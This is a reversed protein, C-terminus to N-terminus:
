PPEVLDSSVFSFWFLLTYQNWYTTGVHWPTSHILRGSNTEFVELSYRAYGTQRVSKYVALEPLSIPLFGGQVEPMGLFTEGVETGMAQVLVKVLYGAEEEKRRVRFGQKGLAAAVADRLFSQDPTLGSIEVIVSADEPLTVTLPPLSREVAQTVLLQEIISRPSKSPERTHACAPLLVLPLILWYRATAV